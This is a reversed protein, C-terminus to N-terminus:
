FENAKFISTQKKIPFIFSILFKRLLIIIELESLYTLDRLILEDISQSEFEFKKNNPGFPYPLFTIPGMWICMMVVLDIHGILFM